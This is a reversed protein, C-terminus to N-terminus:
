SLSPAMMSARSVMAQMLMMALRRTSNQFRRRFGMTVAHCGGEDLALGDAAHRHAVTAGDSVWVVRFRGTAADCRWICLTPWRCFPEEAMLEEYRPMPRAGRQRNWVAHLIAMPACIVGKSILPELGTRSLIPACPATCSM